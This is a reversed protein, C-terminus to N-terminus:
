KSHVPSSQTAKQKVRKSTIVPNEKSKPSLDAHSLLIGDGELESFDSTPNESPVNTPVDTPVDSPVDTPVDSSPSSLLDEINM